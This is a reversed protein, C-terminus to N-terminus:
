ATDGVQVITGVTPYASSSIFMRWVGGGFSDVTQVTVNAFLVGGDIIISTNATSKIDGPVTLDGDTGFTWSNNNAKVTVPPNLGASIKVHSNAGGLCLDALSNDLTGGARIHINGTQGDYAPDLIIYTDAAELGQLDPVLRMTNYGSGDGSSNGDWSMYGYRDNPAGIGNIKGESPLTLSGATDFEWM